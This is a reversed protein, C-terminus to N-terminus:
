KKDRVTVTWSGTVNPTNISQVYDRTQQLFRASAASNCFSLLDSSPFISVLFLRPLDPPDFSVSTL